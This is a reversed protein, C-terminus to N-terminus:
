EKIVEIIQQLKFKWRYYLRRLPAMPLVPKDSRIAEVKKIWSLLSIVGENTVRVATEEKLQELPKPHQFQANIKAANRAQAIDNEDRRQQHQELTPPVDICSKM